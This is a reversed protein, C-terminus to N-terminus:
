FDTGQFLVVSATFVGSVDFSYEPPQSFQFTEETGYPTQVKTAIAGQQQNVVFWDRFITYLSIPLTVTANVIRQRGTFRRRTRQHGSEFETRVMVDADKENWTKWCGNLQAPRPAVQIAM